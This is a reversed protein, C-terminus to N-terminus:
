AKSEPLVPQVFIVKEKELAVTGAPAGKPKRIYKRETVAVPVHKANKMKSYYAAISAAQEVAKKSPEGAASGVKLVVHSGSSGRAHFWLDNPKTFRFTLLDNNESSKGAYVTFGGEVTFIKFPPLDKQEEETMYGLEKLVSLNSHLFNKLSFGDSVGKSKELLAEVATYREKLHVLRQLSEERGTRAKKAKEYYREANRQPTLSADLPITVPAGPHEPDETTLSTDGKTVTTLSMMLLDAFRQYREARSSEALEEEVARITREAREREKQLWGAIEKKEQAYNTSSREMSIFRRIGDFLDDYTESRAGALHELPLLSICFPSREEFYILPRIPGAAILTSIMKRAADTLLLADGETCRDRPIGATHVLEEALRAGLKPAVTRLARVIDKSAAFAERLAASMVVAPPLVTETTVPIDFPALDRREDAGTSGKLFSERVNGEADCLVVNAKSGFLEACLRLGGSIFFAISRDAASLRVSEIHRDTLEAFLDVTNTRTRASGSKATLYNERAGCGITITHPEPAYLILSLTNKEQSYVEAIVTRAYREDLLRAAHLLTFYNTLM